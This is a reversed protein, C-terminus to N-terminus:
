SEGAPPTKTLDLSLYVVDPLPNDYYPECPEFGLERYLLLAPVLRALTDLRMARCGAEKALHILELAMEKGYGYRRHNPAVYLRKMECIGPGIERFAGCAVVDDGFRGLLLRGGPPAYKGPLSAIEEEFSQFCLDVALEEEYSRFLSRVAELDEPEDTVVAIELMRSFTVTGIRAFLELAASPVNRM